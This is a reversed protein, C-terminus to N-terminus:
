PSTTYEMNWANSAKAEQQCRLTQDIHHARKKQEKRNEEERMHKGNTEKQQTTYTNEPTEKQNKNRERKKNRRGEVGNGKESGCRVQRIPSAFHSFVFFNNL